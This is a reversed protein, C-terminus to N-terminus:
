DYYSEKIQKYYERAKYASQPVDGNINEYFTISDDIATYVALDIDEELMKRAKVCNEYTRNLETYDAIFIIKEYITMNPKGITHNMISDLIDTDSIHYKTSAVVRASFGHYIFENYGELIEESHEFNDKIVQINEEKTYYKTIDHLLAAVELKFLDCGYKKGLNLAMDRVGYIHNLRPQKEKYLEELDKKIGKIM